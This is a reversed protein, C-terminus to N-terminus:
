NAVGFEYEEIKDTEINKARCKLEFGGKTVSYEFDRGSFMDKPMGAPLKEPLKGTATKRLYIEVATRLANIDTRAKVNNSLMKGIGPVLAMTLKAELKKKADAELKDNLKKLGTVAKAYPLEMVKVMHGMHEKYYAISKECVEKDYDSAKVDFDSEMKVIQFLEEPTSNTVADTEYGLCETLWEGESAIEDLANKLKRLTKADVPSRALIQQVVAMTAKEISIGVLNDIIVRDKLHQAMRYTAICRDLAASYDGKQSLIVADALVAMSIKRMDSLGPLRMMFGKSFDHGWDCNDIQSAAMIIEIVYHQGEIYAVLNDSPEIKGSIVNNLEEKVEAEPAYYMLCTKYYLVAANDPPYDGAALPAIGATLLILVTVKHLFGFKM